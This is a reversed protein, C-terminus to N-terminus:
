IITETLIAIDYGDTKIGMMELKQLTLGVAVKEVEEETLNDAVVVENEKYVRVTVKM